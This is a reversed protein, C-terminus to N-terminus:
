NPGYSSGLSFSPFFTLYVKLMFIRLILLHFNSSKGAVNKCRKEQCLRNGAFVEYSIPMGEKSVLLALLIQPQNFKKDKSDGNKRFTDEKFSEYYLTPTDFFIVDIKESFLSM